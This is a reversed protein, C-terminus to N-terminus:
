QWSVALAVQPVDGGALGDHLQRAGIVIRKVRDDRMLIPDVGRAPVRLDPSVSYANSWICLRQLCARASPNLKVLSIATDRKKRATRYRM